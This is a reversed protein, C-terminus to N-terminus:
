ESEAEDEIRALRDREAQDAMLLFGAGLIAELDDTTAEYAKRENPNM